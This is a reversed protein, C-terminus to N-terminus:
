YVLGRADLTVIETYVLLLVVTDEVRAAIPGTCGSFIPICVDFTVNARGSFLGRHNRRADGAEFWSYSGSIWAFAHSEWM